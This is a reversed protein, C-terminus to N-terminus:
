ERRQCGGGKKFEAPRLTLGEEQDWRTGGRGKGVIEGRNRKIRLSGKMNGVELRRKKRARERRLRVKGEQRCRRLKRKEGLKEFGKKQRGSIGRRRDNKPEGRSFSKKIKKQKLNIFTNTCVGRM